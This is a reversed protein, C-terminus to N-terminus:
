RGGKEFLVGVKEEVTSLVFCLRDKGAPFAVRAWDSSPGIGPPVVLGCRNVLCFVFDSGECSRLVAIAVKGAKPPPGAVM